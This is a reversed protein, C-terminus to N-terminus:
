SSSQDIIDNLAAKYSRSVPMERGDKLLVKNAYKMKIFDINVIYSRHIQVFNTPLLDLIASMKNRDIEPREKDALYFELYHGDSKILQLKGLPLVARSKLTIYQNSEEAESVQSPNENLHKKLVIGMATTLVMIEVLVGIIIPDYQWDSENVLGYEMFIKMMVALFFLSYAGLFMKSRFPDIKWYRIASSIAFALILTTLIYRIPFLGPANAVFWGPFIAWVLYGAMFFILAGNMIKHYTKLHRATNFYAQVYLILSMVALQTMVPLFHMNITPFASTIFQYTYGQRSFLWLGLAGVYLAYYLFVGRRIIIGLLVSALIVLIIFGYYLGSILNENFLKQFYLDDPYIRMPFRMASLRKDLNILLQVSEGAPINIPFVFNRAMVPRQHFPFQDGSKYLLVASDHEIQYVKILDLQPYDIELYYREHQSQDPNQLSAIAWYADDAYKMGPNTHNDSFDMKGAKIRNLAMQGNLTDPTHYVDLYENLAHIRKKELQITKGPMGLGGISVLVLM